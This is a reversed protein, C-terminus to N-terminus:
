NGLIQVEGISIKSNLIQSTSLPGYISTNDCILIEGLLDPEELLGM